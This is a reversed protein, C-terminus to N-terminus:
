PEPFYDVFAGGPICNPAAPNLPTGYHANEGNLSFALEDMHAKGAVAAGAAMLAAAAPASAPAPSAGHTRLWDPNGFGTRLGQPALPLGPGPSHPPVSPILSHPSSPIGPATACLLPALDKQFFYPTKRIEICKNHIEICQAVVLKALKSM